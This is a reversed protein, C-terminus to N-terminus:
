WRYGTSVYIGPEVCYNGPGTPLSPDCQRLSRMYDGVVDRCISSKLRYPNRAKSPFLNYGDHHVSTLVAYNARASQMVSKWHNMDLRSAEEEFVPLFEEYTQDGYTKEHYIATASGPISMSNWYWAAYTNNILPPYPKNSLFDFLDTSGYAFPDAVSAFAPVSYVGYHIFIGFVGDQFWQPTHSQEGAFAGDM